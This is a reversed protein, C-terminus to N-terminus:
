AASAAVASAWFVAATMVVGRRPRAPLGRELRESDPFDCGPMTEGRNPREILGLDVLEYRAWGIRQEFTRDGSPQREALERESVAFIPALRGCPEATTMPRLSPVCWNQYRLSRCEGSAVSARRWMAARRVICCSDLAFAYRRGDDAIGHFSPSGSATAVDGFACRTGPPRGARNPSATERNLVGPRFNGPKENPRRVRSRGWRPLFM